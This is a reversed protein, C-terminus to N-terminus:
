KLLEDKYWCNEFYSSEYCEGWEEFIEDGNPVTYHLGDKQVNYYEALRGGSLYDQNNEKLLDDNRIRACESSKPAALCIIEIECDGASAPVFGIEDMYTRGGAFKKCDSDSYYSLQALFKSRDIKYTSVLFFITFLTIILLYSKM